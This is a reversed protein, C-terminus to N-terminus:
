RTETPTKAVADELGIAGSSWALGLVLVATAMVVTLGHLLMLVCARAMQPILKGGYVRRLALTLYLWWGGALLKMEAPIQLGLAHLAMFPLAWLFFFTHFHIAFVVHTGGALSRKRYLLATWMAYLPLLAFVLYPAKAPIAKVVKEIALASNVQFGEARLFGDPSLRAGEKGLADEVASRTVVPVSSPNSPTAPDKATTVETSPGITQGVRVVGKPMQLSLAIFFLFSFTAYFAFPKVFRQRRGELFDVTLQGPKLLLAGITRVLKGELAVYHHLYEHLFERFSPAEILAEQGCSHCYSGLLATKCNLCNEPRHHAPAEPM